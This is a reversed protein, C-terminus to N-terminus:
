AGRTYNLAASTGGPTVVTVPVTGAADTPVQAVITAADIVVFDPSVIAGFKVSTSGLLGTGTITVLDGSGAVEPAIASLVPATVDWGQFPNPIEEFEGKGAFTVSYVEIGANDTNSRSIEVTVLSRGADTPNPTGKEPKHYWRVDLVADEGKHKAAYMIAELEPLYLGTSLSRNGQVTLSAGYGRGTVDENPSGLDDYSAVDTKVGPFTPQYGSMRRLPQWAPVAYTGLNVDLGHEFSKGLTTGAPLPVRNM